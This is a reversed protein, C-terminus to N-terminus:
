TAAFRSCRASEWASARTYGTEGDWLALEDEFVDIRVGISPAPALVAFHEAIRSDVTHHAKVVFACGGAALEWSELPEPWIRLKM